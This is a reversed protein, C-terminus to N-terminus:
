QKLINDQKSFKGPTCGYAHSFSRIFAPAWNYGLEYAVAEVTLRGDSLLERAQQLRLQTYYRYPPMGFLFTFAALLKHPGMGAKKCLAKTGPYVPM